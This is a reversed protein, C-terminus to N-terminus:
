SSLLDDTDGHTDYFAVSIPPKESYGYFPQGRTQAQVPVNVHSGVSPRDEETRRCM